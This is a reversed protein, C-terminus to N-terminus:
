DGGGGDGGGDAGDHNSGDAGGDGGHGGRDITKWETVSFYWYILAPVATV